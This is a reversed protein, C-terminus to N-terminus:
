FRGLFQCTQQGLLDDDREYYPYSNDWKNPIPHIHSFWGTLPHSRGTCALYDGCVSASNIAVSPPIPPPPSGVPVPNGRTSTNAGDNDTATLVPVYFANPPVNDFTVVWNSTGSAKKASQPFRGEVRVMVSARLHGVDTSNFPTLAENHVSHCKSVTNDALLVGFVFRSDHRRVNLDM